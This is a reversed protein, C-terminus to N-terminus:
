EEWRRDTLRSIAAKKTKGKAMMRWIKAEYEQVPSSGNAFHYTWTQCTKRYMERDHLYIQAEAGNLPSHPNPDSLLGHIAELCNGITISPYWEQDLLDLCIYGDFDAINPHFIPTTFHISPPKMPFQAPVDVDVKFIGGDYGTGEPGTIFADFNMPNEIDDVIVVGVVPNELLLKIDKLVRNGTTMAM